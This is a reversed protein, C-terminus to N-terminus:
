PVRFRMKCIPCRVIDGPAFESYDVLTGCGTCEHLMDQAAEGEVAEAMVSGGAPGFEEEVYTGSQRARYTEAARARELALAEEAKQDAEISSGIAYGIAAGVPAGFGAGIATGVGAGYGDDCGGYYGYGCGDSAAGIIAGAGAGLGAGALTGIVLGQETARCGALLMTAAALSGLRLVSGSKM